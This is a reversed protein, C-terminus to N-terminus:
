LRAPNAAATHRRALAAPLPRNQELGLRRLSRECAAVVGKADAHEPLVKSVVFLAERPLGARLTEILAQGLVTEAGGDGYMEATDFVRYGIELAQRLAGVEAAKRAASEGLRWTGLGLAPRQEGSPFVVQGRRPAELQM